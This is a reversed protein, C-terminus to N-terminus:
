ENTKMRKTCYVHIVVYTRRTPPSVVRCSVPPPQQEGGHVFLIERDSNLWRALVRDRHIQKPEDTVHRVQQADDHQQQLYARRPTTSTRQKVQSSPRGLLPDSHEGGGSVVVM